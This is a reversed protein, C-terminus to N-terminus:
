GRRCPCGAGHADGVLVPEVPGPGVVRVELADDRPQLAAVALGLRVPRTLLDLLVDALDVAGLAVARPQLGLRQGHGDVAPVDVLQAAQRDFGRDAGHGLQLEGLALVHDGVPHELFHALAHLEQEVDAEVVQRQGARGPRERAALGLADAQGALDAAAQDAHEVHEVLGGDAQVLAVVLAQDARELAQAVEAVRDDHDLVVLLRNAGRVVGHVDPRARPLVAAVDHVRARDGPPAAQHRVLCRDGPLVERALPRDRHRRPAPGPVPSTTVTRPARSCLRRSMSTEKGSPHMIATVPTEPEPLDVNTLSMKNRERAWCRCRALVNGPRWRLTSPM